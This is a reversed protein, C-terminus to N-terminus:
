NTPYAFCLLGRVLFTVNGDKFFYADHRKFSDDPTAHGGRLTKGAESFGPPSTHKAGIDASHLGRAESATPPMQSHSPYTDSFTSDFSVISATSSLVPTISIENDSWSVIPPAMLLFFQIEPQHDALTRVVYHTHVRYHNRPRM